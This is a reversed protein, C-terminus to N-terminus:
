LSRLNKYMVKHPGFDNTTIKGDLEIYGSKEYFPFAKERANFWLLDGGRDIILTEAKKLIEAGAGLGRANPHTAMGRLQYSNKAAALQPHSSKLFSGISVINGDSFAGLHFSTEFNDEPFTCKSYDQGNRLVLSRLPYCGESTILQITLSNM